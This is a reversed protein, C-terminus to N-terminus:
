QAPARPSEPCPATACSTACWVPLTPTLPELGRLEVMVPNSSGRARLFLALDLRDTLTLAAAGNETLLAPREAALMGAAPGVGGRREFWRAELEALEPAVLLGDEAGTPSGATRYYRRAQHRRYTEDLTRFPERLEHGVVKTGDIMFRMFIARNLISRVVEGGREYMGAPDELLYLGKYFVGRGADLQQKADDLGREIEDRERRIAAIKERLREKPWGEEAALDLFYDEKRALEALRKEYQERVDATLATGDDAADDVMSRIEARFDAPFTVAARYHRVIAKEMDEVPVYPHDCTGDQRGMCFFYYYEGGARGIARQVTFRKGCRNCWVWGKLYHPHKRERM